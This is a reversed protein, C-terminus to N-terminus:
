GLSTANPPMRGCAVATRNQAWSGCRRWVVAMLSGSNKNGLPGVFAAKEHGSVRRGEIRLRGDQFLQIAEPYAIM